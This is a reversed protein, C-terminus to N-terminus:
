SATDLTALLEALSPASHDAMGGDDDYEIIHWSSYAILATDGPKPGIVWKHGLVRGLREVELARFQGYPTYKSHTYWVSDPKAEPSRRSM